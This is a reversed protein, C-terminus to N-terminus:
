KYLVLISLPLKVSLFMSKAEVVVVEFAFARSPVGLEDALFVISFVLHDDVINPSPSFIM